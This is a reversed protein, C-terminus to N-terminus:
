PKVGQAKAAPTAAQIASRQAAVAEENIRNILADNVKLTPDSFAKKIRADRATDALSKRIDAMIEPKVEDFSRRGAPKREELRIVHWGFSSKVPDSLAGPEALAFAAASFAPDMQAAVFFGLDGGNTKASPDDSFERALAAFDAGAAAKRRLEAAKERAAADDGQVRVLIHSARVRAPVEFRAPQALYIERARAEYRAPDADVAAAADAEIKRILAQAIMKDTQLQIQRALIPDRDLGSARAEAALARSLYMSNLVQVLQQRNAAFEARSGPPLKDVEAEYDALSLTAVSSTAIASDASRQVPAASTTPTGGPATGQAAAIGSALAVWCGAAIGLITMCPGAAANTSGSCSARRTEVDAVVIQRTPDPADGRLLAYLKM